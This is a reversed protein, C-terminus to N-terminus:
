REGGLRRASADRDLTSLGFWVRSAALERMRTRLAHQPDRRSRYNMTSRNIMMLGSVRRTSLAFVTQTWRGLERRHGPRVAKKARDGAPHSPGALSGRGPAQAEFKGRAVAAARATREAGAGLVEPRCGRTAKVEARLTPHSDLLPATWGGKRRECGFRLPVQDRLSGREKLVNILISGALLCSSVSTLVCPKRRWRCTRILSLRSSYTLYLLDHAHM